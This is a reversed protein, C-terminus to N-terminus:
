PHAARSARFAPERERGIAGIQNQSPIVQGGALGGAPGGGVRRTARTLAAPVMLLEVVVLRSAALPLVVRLAVDSSPVLM